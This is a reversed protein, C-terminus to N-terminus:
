AGSLHSSVHEVNYVWFYHSGVYVNQRWPSGTGTVQAGRVQLYKLLSSFKMVSIMNTVEDSYCDKRAQVTGPTQQLHPEAKLPGM